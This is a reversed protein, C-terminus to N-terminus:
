LLNLVYDIKKNNIKYDSAKWYNYFDKNTWRDMNLNDLIKQFNEIRILELKMSNLPFSSFIPRQLAKIWFENTYMKIALNTFFLDDFLYYFEKNIMSLYIINNFNLYDTIKYIIDYELNIM